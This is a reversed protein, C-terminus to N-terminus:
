SGYSMKEPSLFQSFIHLWLSCPAQICRAKRVGDMLDLFNGGVGSFYTEACINPKRRKEGDTGESEGWDSNEIWLNEPALQNSRSDSGSAKDFRSLSTFQIGIKLIEQKAGARSLGGRVRRFAIDTYWMM